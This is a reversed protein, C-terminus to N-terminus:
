AAGDGRPRRFAAGGEVAAAAFLRLAVLAIGVPIVMMFCYRPIAFALPAQGSAFAAEAVVFRYSAPLLCATVFGAVLEGAARLALRKRESLAHGVADISIHKRDRTAAGAGFLALWLVIQQSLESGGPLALAPLWRGAIPLLGLALLLFLLVAFLCEEARLLIALVRSARFSAGTM